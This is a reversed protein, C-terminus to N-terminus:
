LAQIIIETHWPFRSQRLQDLTKRTKIQTAQLVWQETLGAYSRSQITQRIQQLLNGLGTPLHRITQGQAMEGMDIVDAL